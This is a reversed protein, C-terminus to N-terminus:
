PSPSRPTRAGPLFASTLTMSKSRRESLMGRARGRGGRRRHRTEELVGVAVDGGHHAALDGAAVADVGAGAGAAEEAAGASRRHTVGVVLEVRGVLSSGNQLSVAHNANETGSRLSAPHVYGNKRGLWPTHEAATNTHSSVRHGATRSGSSCATRAGARQGVTREAVELQRVPEAVRHALRLAHEVEGVAIGVAVVEREVEGEGRHHIRQEVLVDPGSPPWRSWSPRNVPVSTSSPSVM